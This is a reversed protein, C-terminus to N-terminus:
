SENLYHGTNRFTKVEWSTVQELCLAVSAYLPRSLLFKRMLPVTNLMCNKFTLSWSCLIKNLRVVSSIHSLLWRRSGMGKLHFAICLYGQSAPYSLACQLTGFDDVCFAVGVKQGEPRKSYRHRFPRNSASWHKGGVYRHVAKNYVCMRLLHKLIILKGFMAVARLIKSYSYNIVCSVQYLPFDYM